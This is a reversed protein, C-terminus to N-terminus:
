EVEKKIEHINKHVKCWRIFEIFCEDCMTISQIMGYRVPDKSAYPIQYAFPHWLLSEDRKCVDCYGLSM